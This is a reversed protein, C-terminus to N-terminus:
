ALLSPPARTFFGAPPGTTPVSYWERSEIAWTVDEAAPVLTTEPRRAHLTLLQCALCTAAEHVPVCSHPKAPEIHAPGPNRETAAELVPAAAYALLQAAALVSAMRRLGHRFRTLGMM